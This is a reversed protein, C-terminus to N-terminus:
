GPTSNYRAMAERRCSGGPFSFGHAATRNLKAPQSEQAQKEKDAARFRGAINRHIFLLGDAVGHDRELRGELLAVGVLKPRQEIALTLVVSLAGGLCD